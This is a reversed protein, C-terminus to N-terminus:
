SMWWILIDDAQNKVHRRDEIHGGFTSQIEAAIQITQVDEIVYIGGNALYPSLVSYAAVQEFPKHSADDVIFDFPGFLDAVAKLTKPDSADARHVHIRDVHPKWIECASGNDMGHIAANVFWDRWVLLSGGHYVGIELVSKVDQPNPFVQEYFRAYSHRTNKDTTYRAMVDSLNM